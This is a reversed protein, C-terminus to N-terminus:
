SSLTWLNAKVVKGRVEAADVYHLDAADHLLMARTTDSILVQFPLDKTMGELRSATNVTDGIATYEVRWDSGVNGSMVVGSNVGIGIRFGDGLGNARVWENFLALRPGAMERVADVARDAHDVQELPAGFAALLGDGRYALLTGGHDRVAESMEQLFLNLAEIVQEAPRLEAFGTFNRIDVFVITAQLRTGGLRLDGDAASLVKEVVPEPVYRSFIERVRERELVASTYEVQLVGLMCLGLAVLPYVVPVVVGANFALQALVAFVAGAALAGLLAVAGTLVRWPPKYALAALPGLAGLVVILLAGVWGPVRKLPLGALITAIANAHVEVGPMVPDMPTQHNDQLIPATAGVVVVADRLRPRAAGALVDSFSVGTVSGGPGTYDILAQGHKVGPPASRSSALEAATVAFGKLGDVESPIRRIVGDADPVLLANADRAGLQRAVRGDGFVNSVGFRDVESAGLVVRGRARAVADLLAQDEEPETPESFQVDYAIVRAGASRLADVLRAHVSRRFPWQEHLDGFTKDDIKVVVVRAPADQRGRQEFRADVTSLELQELAGTFSLALAIATMAVSVVLLMLARTRRRRTM